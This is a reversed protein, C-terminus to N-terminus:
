QVGSAYLDHAVKVVFPEIPDGLPNEELSGRWASMRAVGSPEPKILPLLYGTALALGSANRDHATTSRVALDEGGVGFACPKCSLSRRICQNLNALHGVICRTVPIPPM